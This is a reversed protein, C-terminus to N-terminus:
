KDISITSINPYGYKTEIEDLIERFPYGKGYLVVKTEETLFHTILYREDTERIINIFQFIFIDDLNNIYKNFYECFLTNNFDNFNLDFYIMKIIIEYNHHIFSSEIMIDTYIRWVNTYNESYEYIKMCLEDRKEITMNFSEYFRNCYDYAICLDKYDFDFNYNFFESLYNFDNHFIYLILKYLGSYTIETPQMNMEPEYEFNYFYVNKYIFPFDAINLWSFHTMLSMYNEYEKFEEIEGYIELYQQGFENENPPFGFKKIKKIIDTQHLLYDINLCDLIYVKNDFTLNDSFTTYKDNDLYPKKIKTNFYLIKNDLVEKLKNLIYSDADAIKVNQLVEIYLRDNSIIKKCIDDQIDYPLSEM